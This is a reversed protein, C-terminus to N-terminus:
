RKPGSRFERIRVFAETLRQTIETAVRQKEPDGTHKDPHYTRMLKRYAARVQEMTAEPAVDMSRYAKLVDEPVSPRQPRPRSTAGAGPRRPPEQARETNRGTSLFEDLEDMAAALDPDAPRGSSRPASDEQMLSRILSGLRDFLKDV